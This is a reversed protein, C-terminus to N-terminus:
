GRYRRSRRQIFQKKFLNVQQEGIVKARVNDASKGIDFRECIFDEIHPALALLFESHEIDSFSTEQLRYSQLQQFLATNRSQLLSMFADDLAHLGEVSNLQEFPLDAIQDPISQNM